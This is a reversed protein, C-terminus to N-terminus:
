SSPGSTQTQVPIRAGGNGLETVKFLNGIKESDTEEDIFHPHSICQSANHPRIDTLREACLRDCRLHTKPTPPTLSHM